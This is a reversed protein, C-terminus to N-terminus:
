EDDEELEWNERFEAIFKFVTEQPLFAVLDGFLTPLADEDGFKEDWDDMLKKADELAPTEDWGGKPGLM